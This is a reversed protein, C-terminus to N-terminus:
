GRGAEEGHDFQKKEEFPISKKRFVGQEDMDSSPGIRWRRRFEPKSGRRWRRRFKRRITVGRYEIRSRWCDGYMHKLMDNEFPTRSGKLWLWRRWGKLWLWRRSTTYAESLRIMWRVLSAKGLSKPKRKGDGGTWYLTCDQFCITM